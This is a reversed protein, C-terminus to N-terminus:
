AVGLLTTMRVSFTAWFSSNLLFRRGGTILPSHSWVLHRKGPNTQQELDVASEGHTHPFFVILLMRVWMKTFVRSPLLVVMVAM